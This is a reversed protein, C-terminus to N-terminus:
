IYKGVVPIKRYLITTVDSLGLILLMIPILIIINYELPNFKLVKYLVNVWFMHFVYIGFSNNSLHKGWNYVKTLMENKSHFLVFVSVSLVVIVPSAYGSLFELDVYGNVYELYAFGILVLMFCCVVIIPKSIWGVVNRIRLRGGLLFYFLYITTIPLSFGFSFDCYRQVTPLISCFVLMITLFVDITRVQLKFMPKLVPLVLYIGILVYLYWMHDWTQGAITLYIAKGIDACSFTKNTFFLEMYAFCSGILLLVVIIRKAYKGIAKDYGIEKRSDLLLYGSIILFVPVAFHSWHQIGNYAFKDWNSANHSYIHIAAIAIHDLVVAIACFVRLCELFVIKDKM